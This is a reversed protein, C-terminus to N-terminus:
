LGHCGHVESSWWQQCRAGISVKEQVFNSTAVCETPNDGLSGSKPLSPELRRMVFVVSSVGMGPVTLYKICWCPCLWDIRAPAATISLVVLRHGGYVAEEFVLRNREKKPISYMMSPWLWMLLKEGKSYTDHKPRTSSM